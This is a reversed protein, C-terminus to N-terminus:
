CRSASFFPVTIAADDAPVVPVDVGPPVAEIVSGLVALVCTMVNEESSSNAKSRKNNLMKASLSWFFGSNLASTWWIYWSLMSDSTCIVADSHSLESCM